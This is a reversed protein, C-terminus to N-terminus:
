DIVSYPLIYLLDGNFTEKSVVEHWEKFAGDHTFNGNVSEHQGTHLEDVMAAKVSDSLPEAKKVPILGEIEEDVDEQMDANIEAMISAVDIPPLQALIDEVTERGDDQPVEPTGAAGEVTTVSVPESAVPSPAGDSIPPSLVGHGNGNTAQSEFFRNMLETKTENALQGSSKIVPTSSRLALEQVL